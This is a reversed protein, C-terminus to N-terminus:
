SYYSCDINKVCYINKVIIDKEWNGWNFYYKGQNFYYEKEDMQNIGKGWSYDKEGMRSIGKGWRSCGVFVEDAAPRVQWRKKRYMMAKANEKKDRKSTKTKRRNYRNKHLALNPKVRDYMRYKHQNRQAKNVASATM